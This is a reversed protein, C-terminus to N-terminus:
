PLHILAIEAILGPGFGLAVCPGTAGQEIFRELIFFVTPSSMNGYDSLIARSNATEDPHIGLANEVATIIKPGGPHVCWGNISTITEGHSKLWPDLWDSLNEEIIRPVSIDLTMEFGHDGIQWTMSETSNPVLCSGTARISPRQGHDTTAESKGGLVLAAAGDAFLANAIMKEAHWQTCYHLSCVEVACLLVRASPDADVIAQAVRMGNIGGHCGMFGVHVRSVTPGLNLENMLQVDIGPAGFGTCSVTVLHTIENEAVNSMALAEKAASHALNGAHESYLAMRDSTGPGRAEGSIVSGDTAAPVWSFATEYPVITHRNRVGSKEYMLALRKADRDNECCIAIAMEMAQRMSMTHPPVATALGHIIAPM